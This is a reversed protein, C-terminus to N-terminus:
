NEIERYSISHKRLIFHGSSPHARDVASTQFANLTIGVGENMDHIPAPHRSAHQKKHHLNKM